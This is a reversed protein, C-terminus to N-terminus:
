SAGGDDPLAGVDEVDLLAQAAILRAVERRAAARRPADAALWRRHADRILTRRENPCLVPGVPHPPWLIVTDM